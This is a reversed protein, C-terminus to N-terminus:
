WQEICPRCYSHVCPLIVDPKRELCICCESFKDNNSAQEKDVERLMVSASLKKLSTISPDGDESHSTSAETEKVKVNSIQQAVAYQSKLSKFVQSM